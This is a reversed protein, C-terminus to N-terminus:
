KKKKKVHEPLPKNRPTEKEWRVAMDPYRAHLFRRQAQSKM